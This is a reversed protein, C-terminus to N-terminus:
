VECSSFSLRRLARKRALALSHHVHERAEGPYTSPLGLVGQEASIMDGLRHTSGTEVPIPDGVTRDWATLGMKPTAVSLSLHGSRGTGRGTLDTSCGVMWSDLLLGWLWKM